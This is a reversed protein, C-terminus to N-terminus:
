GNKFNGERIIDKMTELTIKRIECQGIQTPLIININQSHRKKDSLVANYIEDTSFECTTKFFYKELLSFIQRKIDINSTLALKSAGNIMIAMGTAIAHGHSIEYNSCKEIAHGITHGLNLLQREGRDFEDRSVIDGKICVCESVIDSIINMLSDRSTKSLTEFLSPSKLVAYKIAEATGDAFVKDSLTNLTLPDFIVCLPQKFAGMLNKGATLNVATKGGVSSDIASLFTTPVQVYDIGRLYVAAAFGAIDGVVGGGLAIIVDDRCIQNKAMSEVIKLLSVGSKSGEGHPLIYQFTKFMTLSDKVRQLYLASVNDDTIIYVSSVGPKSATLLEGTKDLINEGIFVNYAPEVAIEIKKM